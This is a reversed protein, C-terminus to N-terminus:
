VWRTVGPVGLYGKAVIILHASCLSVIRGSGPVVDHASANVSLRDEEIDIITHPEPVQQALRHVTEPDLDMRVAQHGIVEMQEDATGFTAQGVGHLPQQRHERRVHVSSEFADAMEETTSEHGTEDSVDAVEGIDNAVNMEVGEGDDSDLTGVVVAPRAM